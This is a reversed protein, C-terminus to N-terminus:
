AFLSPRTGVDAQRQTSRASVAMLLCPASSGLATTPDFGHQVNIAHLPIGGGLGKGMPKAEGSGRGWLPSSTWGSVLCAGAM